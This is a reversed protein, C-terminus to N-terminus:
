KLSINDIMFTKIIGLDPFLEKSKVVFDKIYEAKYAIFSGEDLGSPIQYSQYYAMLKASTVGGIAMDRAVAYGGIALTNAVAMGGIALDMAVALGGIAGLIGVAIGGLSLIGVSVGGFSVLGVSAGGGLAFIGVASPGIALIGKATGQRRGAIIHYLPVGLIKMDSKYERYGLDGGAYDSDLGLNESFEKAM